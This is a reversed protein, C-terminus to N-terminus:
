DARRAPKACHSCAWGIVAGVPVGIAFAIGVAKLPDRKIRHTAEDIGDEVADTAKTKLVRAEHAVHQFADEATRRFGACDDTLKDFATTAM